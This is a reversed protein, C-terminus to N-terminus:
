KKLKSSQFYRLASDDLVKLFAKVGRQILMQDVVSDAVPSNEPQADCTVLILLVLVLVLVLV